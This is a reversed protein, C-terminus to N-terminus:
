PAPLIAGLLDPVKAHATVVILALAAGVGAIWAAWKVKNLERSNATSTNYIAWTVGLLIKIATSPEVEEGKEVIGKLMTLLPTM